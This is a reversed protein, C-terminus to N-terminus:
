EVLSRIYALVNQREMATLKVNWAPMNPRGTHISQLLDEDSKEQTLRSTLDAPAPGLLRYGDGQGEVGHCGACCKFFIQRGKRLSLEESSESVSVLACAFVVISVACACTWRQCVVDYM